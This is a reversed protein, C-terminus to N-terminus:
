SYHSLNFFIPERRHRKKIGNKMLKKEESNDWCSKCMYTVGFNDTYVQDIGGIVEGCVECMFPIKIM